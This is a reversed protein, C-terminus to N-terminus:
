REEPVGILHTDFGRLEDGKDRLKGKIVQRKFDTRSGLNIKKTSDILWWMKKSHTHLIKGEQIINKNLHNYNQKESKWQNKQM